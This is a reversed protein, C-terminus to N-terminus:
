QVCCFTKSLGRYVLTVRALDDRPLVPVVRIGPKLLFRYECNPIKDSCVVAIPSLAEIRDERLSVTASQGLYTGRLKMFVQGDWIESGVLGYMPDLSRWHQQVLFHALTFEDSRTREVRVFAWADRAASDAAASPRPYFPEFTDRRVWAHLSDPDTEGNDIRRLDVTPVVRRPVAVASGAEKANRFVIVGPQDCINEGFPM